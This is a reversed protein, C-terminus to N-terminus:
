EHTGEQATARRDATPNAKNLTRAIWRARDLGYVRAVLAIGVSIWYWGCDRANEGRYPTGDHNMPFKVLYVKFRPPRVFAEVTPSGIQTVIPKKMNM